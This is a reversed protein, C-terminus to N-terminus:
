GRRQADPASLWYVAQVDEDGHGEEVARQLEAAIQEIVRLELQEGHAADLMLGADKAALALKFSPPFDHAALLKGKVDAYPMDLPGGDIAAFFHRPDVGLGEALAFTEALGAVASVLWANTVLKARSGAGAEGVWVTKQGVADFVPECRERADAPGSGLVVLKGEQAPQATGLVPADVFTVGADRALQACRETADIGITSMQIWIAGDAARAFAEPGGLAALVADGDTLMTVILQAGAIADAASEHVDAGDDRLPQAKEGSRNWAHVALGAGLINRAMPAGMTGTGIVAVVKPQDSM